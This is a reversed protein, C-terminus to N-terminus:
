FNDEAIQASKHRPGLVWKGVPVTSPGVSYNLLSNYWLFYESGEREITAIQFERWRYADETIERESFDVTFHDKSHNRARTTVIFREPQPTKLTDSSFYAKAIETLESDNIDDPPFIANAAQLLKARYREVTERYTARTADMQTKGDVVLDLAAHAEIATGIQVIANDRSRNLLENSLLNTVQSQDSMDVDAAKRILPMHSDVAGKLNRRSDNLTRDISNPVFGTQLSNLLPKKPNDILQASFKDAGPVDIGNISNLWEIDVPLQVLLMHLAKATNFADLLTVNSTLPEPITDYFANINAMTIKAEEVSGPISREQPEYEFEPLPSPEPWGDASQGLEGATSDAGGCAGLTLM